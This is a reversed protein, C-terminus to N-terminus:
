NMYLAPIDKESISNLLVKKQFEKIKETYQIVYSVSRLAQQSFKHHIGFAKNFNIYSADPYTNIISNAHKMREILFKVEENVATKNVLLDYSTYLPYKELFYNSVISSDTYKFADPIDLIMIELNGESYAKKMKRVNKFQVFETDKMDKGILNCLEKQLGKDVYGVRANLFSKDDGPDNKAILFNGGRLVPMALNVKGSLRTDVTRSFPLVALHVKGKAMANVLDDENRYYKMVFKSNDYESDSLTLIVTFNAINKRILGITIKGDSNSSCAFLIASLIIMLILKTGTNKM